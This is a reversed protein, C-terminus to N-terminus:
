EPHTDLPNPAAPARRAATHSILGDTASRRHRPRRATSTSARSRPQPPLWVRPMVAALLDSPSYLRFRKM